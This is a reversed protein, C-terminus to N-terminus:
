KVPCETIAQGIFMGIGDGEINWRTLDSGGSFAGTGNNELYYTKHFDYYPTDFANVVALLDEPPFDLFAELMIEIFGDALTDARRFIEGRGFAIKVEGGGSRRVLYHLGYVQEGIPRFRVVFSYDNSDWDYPNERDVIRVSDITVPHPITTTGTVNLDKWSAELRYRSGSAVIHPTATTYISSDGSYVLAIRESGGTEHDIVLAANVDGIWSSERAVPRDLPLTKSISIRVPDGTRLRGNVVLREVFPTDPEVVEECSALLLLLPLLCLLGRYRSLIM